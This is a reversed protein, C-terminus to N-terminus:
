LQFMNITPGVGVPPNEISVDKMIRMKQGTATPTHGFLFTHCSKWFTRRIKSCPASRQEPDDVPALNRPVKSGGERSFHTVYWLHKPVHRMKFFSSRLLAMEVSAITRQQHGISWFNSPERHFSQPTTSLLLLSLYNLSDLFFHYQLQWRDSALKYSWDVGLCVGWKTMYDWWKKPLRYAYTIYGDNKSQLGLGIMRPNRRVM